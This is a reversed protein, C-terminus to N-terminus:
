RRRGHEEDTGCQGDDPPDDPNRADLRRCNLLHFRRVFFHHFRHTVRLYQDYQRPQAQECATRKSEDYWILDNALNHRM